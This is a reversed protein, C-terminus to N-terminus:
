KIIQKFFAKTIMKSSGDVGVCAPCGDLCDCDELMRKASLLLDNSFSYLKQSFGIGGPQNDYIHITPKHTYTSRVQYLVSVDWPDCMFFMPSANALLNSLGMLASELEEKSFKETTNEDFSMWFSTTHMELEPLHVKGWGLNEHTNLKIKKFMTVRSSVMVEGHYNINEDFDFEDLVKLTVALDADTYYDVNVHRVYAKKNEFDLKEVQFQSGEHMYVAEDHLLMPAAFRDMEGIVKHKAPDSIDIIIFNEDAASRLSVDNSPFNDTAWHWTDAAHHLIGNQALFELIEGINSGGFTEGDRFPLEFAASKIHSILIYLNDPNVLGNEPSSQFFYEPHKIIFQSLPSSNAVMITLSTDNRRGARGSEQWTAAITGPYGCIVCSQLSGIDIGLELANTSVVTKIKGERLGKEIQRRQTPLYGGRYGRVASDNGIIDRAREKLYNVLVEVTLRAKAFVITSIDNYLLRLAINKTELIASKRIGLHKNVVPPNYFIFHKEGAPAGNNDVLVVDEGIINSALEEPNAITASCCIFQVETGYFELIRKLRRVVNAVHSGFVGRYTHIEDIVVYKLNEFLKVWKTHHPMIGSHLMDPNTVVVHGAQRVAKRAAVPTDGDYTYTKIDAEAENILGYLESVQDASLAKTPFLYLARSSNDKLIQNLVPLNYCLTKGSATPTVVVINKGEYIADMASRQHTYLGSIGRKKCASVLRQDLYSGFDEYQAKKAPIERWNTVNGMFSEDSRLKQLLQDLNM